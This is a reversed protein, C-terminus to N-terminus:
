QKLIYKKFDKYGFMVLFTLCIFGIIVNYPFTFASFGFLTLAVLLMISFTFNMIQMFLRLRKISKLENKAKHTIVLPAIPYQDQNSKEVHSKQKKNMENLIFLAQTYDVKHKTTEPLLFEALNKDDNKLEVSM